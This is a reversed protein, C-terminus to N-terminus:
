KFAENFDNENSFKDIDKKIIDAAWTKLLNIKKEETLDNFFSIEKENARCSIKMEDELLLDKFKPMDIDYVTKKKIFENKTIM